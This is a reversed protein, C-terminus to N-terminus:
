GFLSHLFKSHDVLCPESFFSMLNPFHSLVRNQVWKKDLKRSLDRIEVVLSRKEFHQVTYHIFLSRHKHWFHSSKGSPVGNRIPPTRMVCLLDLYLRLTENAHLGVSWPWLKIRIFNEIRVLMKFGNVTFFEYSQLCCFQRGM